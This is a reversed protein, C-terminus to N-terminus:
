KRNDELARVEVGEENPQAEWVEGGAIHLVLYSEIRDEGARKLVCM